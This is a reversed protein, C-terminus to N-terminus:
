RSQRRKSYVSFNLLFSQLDQDILRIASQLQNLMESRTLLDDAAYNGETGFYLASDQASMGALDYKQWRLRTNYRISHQGGYSFSKENLVYWVFPSYIASEPSQNWIDTLLNRQDVLHITHKSSFAAMGGFYASTLGGGISVTKNPTDSQILATAVTTVAGAIVSLITLRQTRKSDRQQLYTALRTAREAECDLEAAIGSIEMSAILMRNYIEQRKESILEANTGPMGNELAVLEKLIPLVGTANAVQLDHLSFLQRLLTDTQLVTALDTKPTYTSDYNFRFAPECYKRQQSRDLLATKASRCSALGTLVLLLLLAYTARVPM